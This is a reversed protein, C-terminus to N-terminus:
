GCRPQMAERLAPGWVLRLRGQDGVQLAPAKPTGEGAGALYLETGGGPRLRGWAVLRAKREGVQRVCDLDAWARGLRLDMDVAGLEAAGDQLQIWPTLGIGARAALPMEDVDLFRAQGIRGRVTWTAGGVPLDGGSQLGLEVRARGWLPSPAGTAATLLEAVQQDEITLALQLRARADIRTIVGSGGGVAQGLRWRGAWLVVDDGLLAAAPVVVARATSQGVDIRGIRAAGVGRWTRLAPCWRLARLSAAGDILDVPPRLEDGGISVAIGTGDIHDATLCPGSAGAPVPQARHPRAQTIQVASLRVERLAVERRRLSALLDIGADIRGISVIPAGERPPQFRLGRVSLRGEALTLQHMTLCGDCALARNVVGEVLEVRGNGLWGVLCLVAGAALAVLAITARRRAM